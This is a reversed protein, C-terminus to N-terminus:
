GETDSGVPQQTASERLSRYLAIDPIDILVQVLLRAVVVGIIQVSTSLLSALTAPVSTFYFITVVGALAMVVIAVWALIDVVLRLDAYASQDRVARRLHGSETVSSPRHAGRGGSIAKAGRRKKSKGGSGKDSGGVRERASRYAAYAQKWQHDTMKRSSPDMKERSDKFTEFDDM